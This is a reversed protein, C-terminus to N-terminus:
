VQEHKDINKDNMELFELKEQIEKSDKANSVIDIAKAVSNTDLWGMVYGNVMIEASNSTTFNQTLEFGYPSETNKNSCYNGKGWQVSIEFGNGFELQFGKNMTSRFKSM